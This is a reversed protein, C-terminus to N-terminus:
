SLIRYFRAPLLTAALRAYTKIRGPRMKVSQICSERAGKADGNWMRETGLAAFNLALANYVSPRSIYDAPNWTAIWERIRRSDDIMKQDVRCANAEHVRYLTLAEDIYAVDFKQAIRLWMHWDGCGYFRDDWSGVSDIAERRVLAASNIVRNREVLSALVDGNGTRPFPFGLPEPETLPQTDAGVFRGFTHCFGACKNAEMASVQRSLKHPLWVDDDNLIAVYAGTSAEFAKNLTGYTGLNKENLILRSVVPCKALWERTGDTSGDDIAILEWDKFEQDVVGNVAEPLYELHNYCTLLISVLPM